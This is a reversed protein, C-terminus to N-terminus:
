AKIIKGTSIVSRNLGIFLKKDLHAKRVPFLVLSDRLINLVLYGNNRAFIKVAKQYAEDEKYNYIMTINILDITKGEEWQPILIVEDKVVECAKEEKLEFLLGCQAAIIQNSDM